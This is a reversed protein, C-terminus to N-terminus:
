AIRDENAFVMFDDCAHVAYHFSKAFTHLSNAGMLDVQRCGVEDVNVEIFQVLGLGDDSCLYADVPHRTPRRADCARWVTM